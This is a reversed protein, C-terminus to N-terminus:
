CGNRVHGSRSKGVKFLYSVAAEFAEMTNEVNERSGGRHAINLIKKSNLVENIKTNTYIKKKHLIKPFKLFFYSITYYAFVGAFIYAMLTFLEM